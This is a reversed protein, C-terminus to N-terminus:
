KQFVEYEKITEIRIKEKLDEMEESTLFSEDLMNGNGTLLWRPNLDPNLEIIKLLHKEPVPQNSNKWNSM